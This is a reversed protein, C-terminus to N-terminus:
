KSLIDKLRMHLMEIHYSKSYYEGFREKFDSYIEEPNQQIQCAEIIRKIYSEKNSEDFQYIFCNPSGKAIQHFDNLHESYIPMVGQSIYSSLKTPTAVKNVISDSRLCFGFKAKVTDESVREKPVFDISYRKVGYRKIIEEAKEKDKVLLRLSCNDTKREIESYLEITQEFCQWAALSGTYIFVNNDYKGPEFFSNKNIEENFCPMIYCSDIKHGIISEYYEKMKQSVFLIFSANKLAYKEIKRLIFRRLYSHNRMFSEEASLGQFWVIIKQYGAKKALRVAGPLIVVIGKKKNMGSNIIKEIQQTEHGLKNLTKEIINVYDNTVSQNSYPNYVDFTM